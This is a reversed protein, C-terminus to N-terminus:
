GAQRPLLYKCVLEAWAIGSKGYEELADTFCTRAEDKNGKMYVQGLQRMVVSSLQLTHLRNSYNQSWFNMGVLTIDCTVSIEPNLGEAHGHCRLENHRLLGFQSIITPILGSVFLFAFIANKPAWATKVKRRIQIGKNPLGMFNRFRFTGFVLTGGADGPIVYDAGIVGFVKKSVEQM